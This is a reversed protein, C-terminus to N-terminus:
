TTSRRGLLLSARFEFGLLSFFFALYCVGFCSLNKEHCFRLLSFSFLKFHCLTVLAGQNAKQHKEQRNETCLKLYICLLRNQVRKILYSSNGM